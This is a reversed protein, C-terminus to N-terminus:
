QGNTADVNRRRLEISRSVRTDGLGDAALIGRSCHPCAPVMTRSRWADEVMRAAVLHIERSTQEQLTATRANIKAIEQAYDGLVERLAWVPSLQAGCDDCTIIDGHDQITMHKHACDSDPTSVSGERKRNFRYEGLQIVESMGHARRRALTATEGTLGQRELEDAIEKARQSFALM